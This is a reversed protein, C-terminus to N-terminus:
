WLRVGALKAFVDMTGGCDQNARLQITAGEALQLHATLAQKTDAAAAPGGEEEAEVTTTSLVYIQSARVNGAFAAGGGGASSEDFHVYGSIAYFGDEPATWTATPVAGWGGIDTVETDFSIAAMGSGAHSYASATRVRFRFQTPSTVQQKDSLELGLIGGTAFGLRDDDIRYMGMGADAVFSYFPATNLGNANARIASALFRLLETGAISVGLINAGAPYIGTGLYYTGSYLSAIGPAAASGAAVIAGLTDGGEAGVKIGALINEVDRVRGAFLRFANVTIPPGGSANRAPFTPTTVDGTKPRRRMEAYEDGDFFIEAEQFVTGGYSGPAGATWQVRAVDLVRQLPLVEISPIGNADLAVYHWASAGGPGVISMPVSLVVKIGNVIAAGAAVDLETTPAGIAVEYSHQGIVGDQLPGYAGADNLGLVEAFLAANPGQVALLEAILQNVTAEITTFDTDLDNAYTFYNAIDGSANGTAFDKLLSLPTAM